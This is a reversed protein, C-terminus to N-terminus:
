RQEECRCAERDRAQGRSEVRTVCQGTSFLCDQLLLGLKVAAQPAQDATVAPLPGTREGAQAPGPLPASRVAGLALGGRGNGDAAFLDGSTHPDDPLTLGSPLWTRMAEDDREDGRM